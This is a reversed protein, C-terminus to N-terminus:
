ACFVAGKEQKEELSALYANGYKSYSAPYVQYEDLLRALWLPMSGPIKVEMIRQGPQLLQRGWAGASLDLADERWLIRSDFTIRLNPNDACIAAIRDYSLFMAPALRPYYGLVWGIEKEIQTKRGASEGCNLFREAEQLPMGIRRKYVVGKYKKKLEVFVAADKQPVGYSRLRLKEKYVPKELSTRILRHDPTDYYINCVTTNGYRDPKMYEQLRTFLERFTGGDLLYKKEYRKFVDQYEKM